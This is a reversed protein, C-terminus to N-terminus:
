QQRRAPEPRCGGNGPTLGPHRPRGAGVQRRQGKCRCCNTARRMAPRTPTASSRLRWIPFNKLMQAIDDFLPETEPRITAQDVDFHIGYLDYLHKTELAKQMAERGYQKELQEATQASVSSFPTVPFGLISPWRAQLLSLWRSIGIRLM